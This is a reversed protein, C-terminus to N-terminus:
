KRRWIETFKSDVVRHASVVHTMVDRVGGEVVLEVVADRLPRKKRWSEFPYAQIPLFTENGRPRPNMITSGSNIPSLAIRDRHSEVIGKTDLTLVTQPFERYAKAGLLRRLRRESLWFFVKANLIEYWRSPTLGDLLCKKLAKDSMPK